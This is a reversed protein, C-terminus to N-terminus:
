IVASLIWTSIRHQPTLVEPLNKWEMVGTWEATYILVQSYVTTSTYVLLRRVNITAYLQINGLSTAVTDSHVPRDPFYLSASQFTKSM